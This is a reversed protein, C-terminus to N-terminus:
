SWISYLTNLDVGDLAESDISLFGYLIISAAACYLFSIFFCVIGNKIIKNITFTLFAGGYFILVSFIVSLAASIAEGFLVIPFIYTMTAALPMALMILTSAGYFIMHKKKTFQSQLIILLIAALGYLVYVVLTHSSLWKVAGLFALAPIAVAGFALFGLVATVYTGDVYYIEGYGDYFPSDSKHYNFFLM